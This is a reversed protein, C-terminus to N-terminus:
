LMSWLCPHFIDDSLIFYYCTGTIINDINRIYVFIIKQNLSRTIQLLLLLYVYFMLKWLAMWFFRILYEQSCFIEYYYIHVRRKRERTFLFVETSTNLLLNKDSTTLLKSCYTQSSVRKKTWMKELNEVSCSSLNEHQTTGLYFMLKNQVVCTRSMKRCSSEDWGSYIRLAKKLISCSKEWCCFNFFM